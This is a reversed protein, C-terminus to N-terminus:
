IKLCDPTNKLLPWLFAANCCCVPAAHARQGVWLPRHKYAFMKFSFNQAITLVASFAFWGQRHKGRWLVFHGIRWLRKVESYGEKWRSGVEEVGHDLFAARLLKSFGAAGHLSSRQAHLESHRSPESTSTSSLFFVNVEDRVLDMEDMWWRLWRVVRGDPWMGVVMVSVVSVTGSRESSQTVPLPM